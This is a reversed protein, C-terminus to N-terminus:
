LYANINDGQDTLIMRNDKYLPVPMVKDLLTLVNKKGSVPYKTMLLRTLVDVFIEENYEVHNFDARGADIGQMHLIEHTLIFTILTQLNVEHNRSIFDLVEKDQIYIRYFSPRANVRDDIRMLRAFVGEQQHEMGSEESTMIDYIGTAVFSTGKGVIYEAIESCYRLINRDVTNRTM